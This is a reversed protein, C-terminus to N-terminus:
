NKWLSYLIIGIAFVELMLMIGKFNLRILWNNAREREDAERIAKNKDEYM